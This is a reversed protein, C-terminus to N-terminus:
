EQVAHARRALARVADAIADPRTRIIMHGANPLVRLEGHPLVQHLARSETLLEDRDGVILSAPARLDAFRPGYAELATQLNVADWVTANMEGPRLWLAHAAALEEGPVADPAYVRTLGQEVVRRGIPLLVTWEAIRGLVPTRVIRSLLDPDRLQVAARTGVLVLGAVEAPYELAYILALAGGWSHGVLIPRTVEAQQLLTHVIAAQERPTADGTRGSHGHGPRDIAVVRHDRALRAGVEDFDRISGPNGHLFVVPTGRGASTYHLRTGGAVVFEGAPPFAATARRVHNWTNLWLAGAAVLASVGLLRLVLRSRRMVAEATSGDCSLRGGGDLRRSTAPM